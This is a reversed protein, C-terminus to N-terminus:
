GLAAGDDVVLLSGVVAHDGVPLAGRLDVLGVDGVGDVLLLHRHEAVQTRLELLVQPAEGAHVGGDRLGVEVPEGVQEAHVLGLALPGFSCPHDAM